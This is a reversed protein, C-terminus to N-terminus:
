KSPLEWVAEAASKANWAALARHLLALTPGDEPHESTLHSLKRMAQEVDNQEWCALAGEYEAAMAQWTASPGDRLEYLQVPSAIGKVRVAGLRRKPTDEDLQQVTAETVMFPVQFFRTASQVRSALNVHNGHAGYKLKIASGVNGVLVKGSNIGVGISTSAGLRTQWRMNLNPIAEMMALGAAYARRAHDPRSVPAGFMAFIEDGGYDVLTGEQHLVCLSLEQLVDNLWEVTTAPGQAHAIKSFGSIDCFLLSVEEERGHLLAPDEQVYRAIEPTVFQQLCVQAQIAKSEEEVRTLAASVGSALIEMFRAELRGLPRGASQREGYLVGIIQGTRNRIPSAVVSEIAQLSDALGSSSPPKRYLTRESKLIRSLITASPQWATTAPVTSASAETRWREGKRMLVAVRELDAIKCTAEVVQQLFNSSSAALQVVQVVGQLRCLMDEYADADFQRGATGTFLSESLGQEIDLIGGLLGPQAIPITDFTEDGEDSDASGLCTFEYQDFSLTFPIELVREEDPKLSPGQRLRIEAHNKQGLNRVAIEHESRRTLCFQRRSIFRMTKPAFIMRHTSKVDPDSDAVITCPQPDENGQRGCLLGAPLEGAFIRAGRQYVEIQM